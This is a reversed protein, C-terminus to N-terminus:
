EAAYGVPIIYLPKENQPLSLTEHVQEDHFAGVPVSVLGLAVAQLHINQAMHGVEIHVYRVARERYHRETRQYVAAIVIDVPAEEIFRQNLAARSLQHRADSTTTQELEHTEPKYHYVGEGGVMYIELPYLAGASPVTRYKRGSIGQGAWLLQSIQEWTLEKATFRRRSRRKELCEELSVDGKKIPISLKM